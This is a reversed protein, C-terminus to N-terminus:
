RIEDEQLEKMPLANRNSVTEEKEEKKCGVSGNWIDYCEAGHHKKGEEFKHGM